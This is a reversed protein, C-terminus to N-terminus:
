VDWFFPNIINTHGMIAGAYPESVPLGDITRAVTWFHALFLKVSENRAANHTHGKTWEPNKRAHREKRELFFKKYPHDPDQRNFQDGIQFGLTRGPTSWNAQTGKARKPMVGDVTHRGLFAWWKSITPFDRVVIKYKLLGEKVKKQCGVCIMAGEKKELEGGCDPCVPVFKYYYTIILESAIAPGIGPIKELWESYIAWNDLEKEINRAIRMKVTELGPDAKGMGKLLPDFDETMGEGPLSLLRQRSAAILKTVGKYTKVLYNLYNIQIENMTKTM